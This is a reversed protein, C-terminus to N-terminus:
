SDQSLRSFRLCIRIISIFTFALFAVLVYVFHTPNLRHDPHLNSQVAYDFTFIIVLFIACGLWAFWASLFEFSAARHELSLWYNKNPLNIIETPVSRIIAPIAFAIVTALVTAGLFFFFFVAKTQWGNASGQSNFHSQVVDPLQPYYLSFHIAAYLALLVFCLKPFSSNM